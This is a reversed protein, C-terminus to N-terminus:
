FLCSKCTRVQSVPLDKPLIADYIDFFQNTDENRIASGLLFSYKRNEAVNEADRDMKAHLWRSFNVQIEDGLLSRTGSSILDFIDLNLIWVIQIRIRCSM